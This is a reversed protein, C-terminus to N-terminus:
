PPRPAGPGRPAASLPQAGVPPPPARHGLNAVPGPPPPPSAGKLSASPTAGGAVVTVGAPATWPARCPPGGAATAVGAPAAVVVDTIGAAALADLSWELM